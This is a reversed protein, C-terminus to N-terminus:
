AGVYLMCCGYWWWWCCVRWSDEVGFWYCCMTLGRRRKEYGAVWWDWISVQTFSLLILLFTYLLGSGFLPSCFLSHFPRHLCNLPRVRCTLFRTWRKHSPFFLPWSILTHEQRFVPLAARRVTFSLLFKYNWKFWFFELSLLRVNWGWESLFDIDMSDLKGVGGTRFAEARIYLRFWYLRALSDM